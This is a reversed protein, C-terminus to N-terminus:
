HNFSMMASWQPPNPSQYIDELVAWANDSASRGSM